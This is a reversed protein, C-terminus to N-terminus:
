SGGSQNLARLNRLRTLVPGLDPLDPNLEVKALELVREGARQVNEAETDYYRTVWEAVARLASRFLETDGRTAALQAVQLQLQVNERLLREEELTLLEVADTDGAEHVTVVESLLGRFDDWLSDQESVDQPKLLNSGSAKLTRRADLPWSESARALSLLTGSIAVRDPIETNELNGLETAIDQRISEYVPDQVMRLREMAAQMARKAGAVDMYLNLRENAARLLFDVESVLLVDEGTDKRRNVRALADEISAIRQDIGSRGRRSDDAIRGLEREVGAMQAEIRAASREGEAKGEDMEARAQEIRRDLNSNMDAVARQLDEQLAAFNQEPEAAQKSVWWQYLEWGVLAMSIFLALFAIGGGQRKAPTAAPSTDVTQEEDSQLETESM